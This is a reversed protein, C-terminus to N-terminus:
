LIIRGVRVFRLPDTAQRQIQHFDQLLLIQSRQVDAGTLAQGEVARARQLMRLLQAATDLGQQLLETEVKGGDGITMEATARGTAVGNGLRHEGSLQAVVAQVCQFGALWVDDDSGIDATLGM